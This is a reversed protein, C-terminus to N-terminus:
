PSYSSEIRTSGTLVEPKTVVEIKIDAYKSIVSNKNSTLSVSIASLQKTYKLAGIVYPVGARLLELSWIM